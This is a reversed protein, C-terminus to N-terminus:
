NQHGPELRKQQEYEEKLQSWVDVNVDRGDIHYHQRLTGERTFGAKSYLRSAPINDTGVHLYLRNLNLHNFAFAQMLTLAEFGAGRSQYDKEGILVWFEARRHLLDIHYLGTNGIHAGNERWLVAFVMKAPDGEISAFWREHAASSVPLVRLMLRNLAPDNAWRRAAELHERDLPVLRIATGEYM